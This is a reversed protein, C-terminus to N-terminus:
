EAQDQEAPQDSGADEDRSVRATMGTASADELMQEDEPTPPPPPLEESANAETLQEPTPTAAPLPEPIEATTEAPAPAINEAAGQEPESRSCAALLITLAAIAAIKKM